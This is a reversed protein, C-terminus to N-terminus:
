RAPVFISSIGDIQRAFLCIAAVRCVHRKLASYSQKISPHHSLALVKALKMQDSVKQLGRQPNRNAEAAERGYRAFRERDALSM